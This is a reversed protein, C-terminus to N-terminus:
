LITHHESFCSNQLWLIPLSLCYFLIAPQYHGVLHCGIGTNLLSPSQQSQHNQDPQLLPSSQMVSDLSPIWLVEIPHMSYLYQCLALKLGMICKSRSLSWFIYIQIYIYIYLPIFGMQVQMVFSTFMSSTFSLISDRSRLNACIASKINSCLYVAHYLHIATPHDYSSRFFCM